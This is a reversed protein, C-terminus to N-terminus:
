RECACLLLKKVHVEKTDVGYPTYRLEGRTLGYLRAYYSLM